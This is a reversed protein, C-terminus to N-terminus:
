LLGIVIGANVSIAAPATVFYLAIREGGVARFREEPVPLYRFGSLANIHEALLEDVLTGEATHNISMSGAFAVGERHPEATFATGTGATSVQKMGVEISTSTITDFTVYARVVEFPQDAGANVQSLTIATSVSVDQLLVSYVGLDQTM